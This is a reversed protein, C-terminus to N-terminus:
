GRFTRGPDIPHLRAVQEILLRAETPLDKPMIIKVHVLQDGTEDGQRIGHGRLRLKTGSNIGAPISITEPGDITPVTIQTGLMAEYASIPVDLLIDLGDRRFYPHEAINVVIYLDGPGFSGKAGKGRVRIRSGTKVGAPIKVEISDTRSGRNINVPLSTGRAAQALTLTVPYEVDADPDRREPRRGRGFPGKSGFLQEFVGEYGADSDEDSDPPPEAHRPRWAPDAGPARGGFQDYTRRKQPDSLTDYAEQVEQFKRDAQPDHKNADPHFKRVLRRHAARIEDQSASRPVGLIEYYDRAMAPM